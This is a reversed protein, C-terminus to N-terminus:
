PNVTGKRTAYRLQFGIPPNGAQIARLVESTASPSVLVRLDANVSAGRQLSWSSNWGALNSLVPTTYSSAGSLWATSFFIEYRIPQGDGFLSMQYGRVPSDSYALNTASITVPGSPNTLFTATSFPAPLNYNLSNPLTALVEEVGRETTFIIVRFGEGANLVSSPIIPYNLFAGDTNASGAGVISARTGSLFLIQGTVTENAGSDIGSVSVAGSNVDFVRVVTGDSQNFDINYTTSTNFTRNRQLWVRNPTNGAIRVAIVDYSGPAVSPLTYNGVTVMVSEGIAVIAQNGNLGQVTGDVQITNSTAGCTAALQPLEARTAHVINVTPKDGGCVYAVSYRGDAATVNVTGNFGSSSSLTSWTGNAGDQFAVWLANRIELAVPNTPTPTASGGGGGCGSVGVVLAILALFVWRNHLKRKM